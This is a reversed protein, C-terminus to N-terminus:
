RALERPGARTTFGKTKRRGVDSQAAVRSSFSGREAGGQAEPFQLSKRRRYETVRRRVAGGGGSTQAADPRGQLSRGPSCLQAPAALSCASLRAQSGRQM